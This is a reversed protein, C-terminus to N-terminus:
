PVMPTFYQASVIMTPTVSMIRTPWSPVEAQCPSEGGDADLLRYRGAQVMEASLEEDAFPVGCTVPWCRRDIGGTERLTLLMSMAEM